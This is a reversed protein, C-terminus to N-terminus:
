PHIKSVNIEKPLVKMNQLSMYSIYTYSHTYWIHFAPEYFCFSPCCHQYHVNTKKICKCTYMHSARKQNKLSSISPCFSFSLITPINKLQAHHFQRYYTQNQGLSLLPCQPDAIAQNLGLCHDLVKECITSLSPEQLLLLFTEKSMYELCSFLVKM